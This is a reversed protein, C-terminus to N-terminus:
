ESSVISAWQEVSQPCDTGFLSAANMSLMTNLKLSKKYMILNSSSQYLFNDVYKWVWCICENMWEYM